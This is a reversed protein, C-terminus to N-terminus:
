SELVMYAWDNWISNRRYRYAMGNGNMNFALQWGYQHNVDYYYTHYMVWEGFRSPYGTVTQGKRIGQPANDANEGSSFNAVCDFDNTTIGLLSDLNSNLNLFVSKLIM